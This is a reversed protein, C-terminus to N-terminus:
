DVEIPGSCAPCVHHKKTRTWGAAQAADAGEGGYSKWCRFRHCDRCIMCLVWGTYLVVGNQTIVSIAYGKPKGCGCSCSATVSDFSLEIGDLSDQAQTLLHDCAAWWEVEAYDVDVEFPPEEGEELGGHPIRYTEPSHTDLLHAPDMPLPIPPPPALYVPALFVELM